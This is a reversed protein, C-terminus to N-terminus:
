RSPVRSRGYTQPSCENDNEEEYLDRIHQWDAIGRDAKRNASMVLECDLRYMLLLNRVCKLLHPPDYITSIKRGNWKFSPEDFTAGLRKLASVQSSGLDCVTTLVLLGAEDCAKLVDKIISTLERSNLGGRSPFYAILQKYKRKLGRLMLVLVYNAVEMKSGGGYSVFGVIKDSAVSYELHEKISMEDFLAACLHFGNEKLGVEQSILKLTNKHIGPEMPLKSLLHQLTSEAPLKFITRLLKYNKPSRKWLALALVRTQERWRIGRPKKSKNEIQTQQQVILQIM